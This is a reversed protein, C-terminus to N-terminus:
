SSSGAGALSNWLEWTERRVPRGRALFYGIRRATVDRLVGPLDRPVRAALAAREAEHTRGPELYDALFLVRGCDDWGHYGVTHYRVADLVGADREGHARAAEAAAPGHWVKAPWDSQPV